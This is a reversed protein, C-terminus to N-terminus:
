DKQKIIISFVSLLFAALIAGGLIDTFWHVGSLLRGAVTIVAVAACVATLIYRLTKNKVYRKILMIMSGMIVISLLTHSSPFSSEPATEGPAFVPRCNVTIKGFLVYLAGTVVYLGGVAFIEKDVKFLSKRSILQFLGAIVFIGCSAIALYGTVETIEYWSTNGGLFEYAAVNFHSLGVDSGASGVKAKDVTLLLVTLLIFLLASIVPFLYKSAKKM